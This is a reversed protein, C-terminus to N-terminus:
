KVETLTVLNSVKVKRVFTVEYFIDGSSFADFDVDLENLTFVDSDEPYYLKTGKKVLVQCSTREINYYVM